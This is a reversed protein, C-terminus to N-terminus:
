GTFVPVLQLLNYWQPDTQIQIKGDHTMVKYENSKKTGYVFDREDHVFAVLNCIWDDM